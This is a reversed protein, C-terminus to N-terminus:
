KMLIIAGSNDGGAISKGLAAFTLNVTSPNSLKHQGVIVEGTGAAAVLYQKKKTDAGFHTVVIGAGYVKAKGMTWTMGYTPMDTYDTRKAAQLELTGTYSDGKGPSKAATITFKGSLDKGTKGTLTETGLATKADAILASPYWTGDLKGDTIEYVALGVNGDASLAAFIEEEDSAASPLFLGIGKLKQGGAFDYTLYQYKGVTTVKAKGKQFAKVNCNLIDFDGFLRSKIRLDESKETAAAEDRQAKAATEDLQFGEPKLLHGLAIVQWVALKENGNQLRYLTHTKREGINPRLSLDDADYYLFVKGNLDTKRIFKGDSWALRVNPDKPNYVRYGATADGEIKFLGKGDADEIKKTNADYKLVAKGDPNEIANPFVTYVKKDNKDFV